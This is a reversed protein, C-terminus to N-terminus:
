GFRSRCYLLSVMRDSLFRGSLTSSFIFLTLVANLERRTVGRSRNGSTGSSSDKVLASLVADGREPPSRVSRAVEGEAAETVDICDTELWTETEPLLDSCNIKVDM